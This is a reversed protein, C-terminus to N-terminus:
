RQTRARGRVTVSATSASEFAEPRSRAFHSFASRSSKSTALMGSTSRVLAPVPLVCLKKANRSWWYMEPAPLAKAVSSFGPARVTTTSM